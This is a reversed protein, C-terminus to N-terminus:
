GPSWSRKMITSHHQISHLRHQQPRGRGKPSHYHHISHIRHTSPSDLSQRNQHKDQLPTPTHLYPWRRSRTCPPRARTSAAPARRNNYSQTTHTHIHIHSLYPRDPPLHPTYTRIHPHKRMTHVQTHGVGVRVCASLFRVYGPATWFSSSCHGSIVVVVVM